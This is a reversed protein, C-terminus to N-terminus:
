TPKFLFYPYLDGDIHDDQDNRRRSQGEGGLPPVLSYLKEVLVEFTEIQNTFQSRYRVAWAIGSKASSVNRRANSTDLDARPLIHWSSSVPSAQGPSLRLRTQTQESKRFLDCLSLLIRQVISAVEPHDLRTHHQDSLKDGSIGM